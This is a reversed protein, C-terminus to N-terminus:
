RIRLNDVVKVTGATTRAIEIIRAKNGSSHVIGTLTVVGREVDVDVNLSRIGPEKILKGKIKSGIVKDNFSQGFSKTGIQLNNDVRQVGAVQSAIEVARTAEEQTEVVGTLTVIGELTDVDIKRAKVLPDRVMDMNVKTTITKDDVMRGMTREDTGTKYAGTAAGGVVAPACGSVLFIMVIAYVIAQKM